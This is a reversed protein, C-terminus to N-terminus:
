SRQRPHQRFDGAIQTHRRLQVLCLDQQRDILALLQEASQLRFFLAAEEPNERRGQATVQREQRHHGQARFEEAPQLGGLVVTEGGAELLHRERGQRHSLDRRDDLAWGLHRAQVHLLGKHLLGGGIGCGFVGQRQKGERQPLEMLAEPRSATEAKRVILGQPIGLPSERRQLVGHAAARILHESRDLGALLLLSGQAIGENRRHHPELLAVVHATRRSPVQQRRLGLGQQLLQHVGAQQDAALLLAMAQQLHGM